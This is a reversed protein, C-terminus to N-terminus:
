GRAPFDGVLVVQLNLALYPAMNYHAQSAGMMTLDPVIGTEAARLYASENGAAEAYMNIDLMGTGSGKIRPVSAPLSGTQLNGVTGEGSTVPQRFTSNSLTHQHIPIENTVLTVTEAGGVQGLQYYSGGINSGASLMCRGRLDPIAFTSRGDGGYVTGFIAYLASNSAIALISGNASVLNRIDFNGAFMIIVGIFENM